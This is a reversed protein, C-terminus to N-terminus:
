RRPSSSPRGAGVAHGSLTEGPMRAYSASADRPQAAGDRAPPRGERVIVQPAQPVRPAQPAQPQRPQAQRDAPARTSQAARAPESSPRSRADNGRAGRGGRGQGGGDSRRQGGLRAPNLGKQSHREGDRATERSQPPAVLLTPAITPSPTVPIRMRIAREIDTLFAREDPACLAIAIGSAGARATRGIRHVYSEPLNPLDFNVVHSVGDVDIGRAAIDTAVLVRVSGDKFGALAKERANQSKNGHIVAAETGWVKLHDVLRNAGHKTRTFVLVREMGKDALLTVLLARKEANQVHYVTQAVKEATTAPPVVAVEAPNKLMTAALAKVETPMTASFFLSQRKAPLAKLVRRVDPLFGMDLMRDAEDLVLIELGDFRVLGQGMHDLLRGPTAILVDVGRRLTEEQPRANVGGFIVTSTFPLHRGYSTFSEGIQSALERTPTVVLVRIPRPGRQAAPKAQDNAGGSTPHALALRQLIPLAFAATKGTGTQALGLLDRGALVHPIARAQIPTPQSYGEEAVARLLPDILNLETFSM